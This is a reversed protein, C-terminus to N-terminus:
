RGRTGKNLPLELAMMERFPTFNVKPLIRTGPKKQQKKESLFLCETYIIKPIKKLNYSM